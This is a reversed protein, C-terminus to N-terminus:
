DSESSNSGSPALSLSSFDFYTTAQDLLSSSDNPSQLVNNEIESYVVSCHRLFAHKLPHIDVVIYVRFFKERTKLLQKVLCHNLLMLLRLWIKRENQM